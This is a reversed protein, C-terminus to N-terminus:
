VGSFRRDSFNAVAHPDPDRVTDRREQYLGNRLVDTVAEEDALRGGPLRSSEIRSLVFESAERTAVAPGPHCECFSEALLLRNRSQRYGPYAAFDNPCLITPILQRM